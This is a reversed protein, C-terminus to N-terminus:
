PAGDDSAPEIEEVDGDAAQFIFPIQGSSRLWSAFDQAFADGRLERIAGVLFGTMAWYLIAAVDFDSAKPGNPGSATALDEFVMEAAGAAEFALDVDEKPLSVPQLDPLIPEKPFARQDAAAVWDMLLMQLNWYLDTDPITM